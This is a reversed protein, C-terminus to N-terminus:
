CPSRPRNPAAEPARGEERPSQDWRAPGSLLLVLLFTEGLHSAVLGAYSPLISCVRDIAITHDYTLFMYTNFIHSHHRYEIHYSANACKYCLTEFM